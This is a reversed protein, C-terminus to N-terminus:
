LKNFYDIYNQTPTRGGATSIELEIYPLVFSRYMGSNDSGPLPGAGAMILFTLSGTM